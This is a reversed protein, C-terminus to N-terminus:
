LFRLLESTLNDQATFIVPSLVDGFRYAEESATPSREMHLSATEHPDTSRISTLISVHTAIFLTLFM